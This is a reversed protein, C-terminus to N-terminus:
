ANATSRLRNRECERESGPVPPLEVWLRKHSKASLDMRFVAGDDCVVELKSNEYGHTSAWKTKRPAKPTSM